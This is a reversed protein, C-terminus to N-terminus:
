KSKKLLDDIDMLKFRIKNNKGKGSSKTILKHNTIFLPWEEQKKLMTYIEKISVFINECYAENEYIKNENDIEELIKDQFDILLNIIKNYKLIDYKSLWIMFSMFSKLSDIKKIYDCFADYDENNSVFVINDFEKYYEDVRTEFINKFNGIKDYLKSILKAFLESYFINSSAIDFIKNCVNMKDDDKEISNLIKLLSEFQRDFNKDSLKNLIKYAESIDVNHKKIINLKPKLRINESRINLNNKLEDLKQRVDINLKNNSRDLRISIDLIDDYSYLIM